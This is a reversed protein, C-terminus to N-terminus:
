GLETELIHSAYSDYGTMKVMFDGIHLTDWISGTVVFFSKVVTQQKQLLTKVAWPSHVIGAVGKCRSELSM